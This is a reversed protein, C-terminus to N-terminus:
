NLIKSFSLRLWREAQLPLAPECQHDQSAAQATSAWRAWVVTGLLTLLLRLRPHRAGAKM